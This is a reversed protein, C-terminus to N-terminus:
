SSIGGATSDRRYMDVWEAFHNRGPKMGNSREVERVLAARLPFTGEHLVVRSLAAKRTFLMRGVVEDLAHTMKRDLTLGYKALIAAVDDDAFRPAKFAEDIAREVTPCTEPVLRFSAREAETYDIRTSM